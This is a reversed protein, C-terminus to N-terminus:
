DVTLWDILLYNFCYNNIIITYHSKVIFVFGAPNLGRKCKGYAVM